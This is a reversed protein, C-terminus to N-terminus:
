EGAKQFWTDIVHNEILAAADGGPLSCVRVMGADPFHERWPEGQWGPPLDSKNVVVLVAPARGAAPKDKIIAAIERAARDAEGSWPGSGDCVFWVAEALDLRQRAREWAEAALGADSECFGPMDGLLVAYGGIDLLEDVVDRTAGAEPDVFARDYGALNNLLSSKGANPPGALVVRHTALVQEPIDWPEGNRERERAQLVAAVQMETVCNTLLTDYLEDLEKVFAEGNRLSGMEAFGGDRFFGEVAERVATGGHTMLVRMGPKPKALMVEDIPEADGGWLWGYRLENNQLANGSRSRTRTGVHCDLQAGLIAEDAFAHFIGLAGKQRSSAVVYLTITSM